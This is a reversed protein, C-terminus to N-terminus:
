LHELLEISYINKAAIGEFDLETSDAPGEVRPATHEWPTSWRPKEDGKLNNRAVVTVM